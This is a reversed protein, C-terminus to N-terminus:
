ICMLFKMNMQLHPKMHMCDCGCKYEYVTGYGSVTLYINEHAHVYVTGHAHVHLKVHALVYSATHTGTCM